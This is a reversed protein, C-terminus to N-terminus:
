YDDDVQFLNRWLPFNNQKKFLSGALTGGGDNKVWVRLYNVNTHAIKMMMLM